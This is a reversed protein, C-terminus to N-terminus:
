NNSGTSQHSGGRGGSSSGAPVVKFPTTPPTFGGGRGGNGGRGGPPGGRGGGPAQGGGLGGGRDGAGGRMGRQGGPGGQLGGRGGAAEGGGGGIGGGAGSADSSEAEMVEEEEEEEPEYYPPIIRDVSVHTQLTVIGRGDADISGDDNGSTSVSIRFGWPLGDVDSDWDDFWDQGDYAEIRLGIVGDAIPTVIGGGAPIDDPVPDRRQWLATGFRDEDIRYQTEYEGGEGNYDIAGLPELRSNFILIEDRDLDMRGDLRVTKSGDYLMVRTNFLDADRLIAALDRRVSNLASDARLYAQLRVRSIARARGVQSLTTVVTLLVLASIVGALVLEILTFGQHRSSTSRKKM